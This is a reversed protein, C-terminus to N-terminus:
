QELWRTPQEPWGKGAYVVLAILGFQALTARIKCPMFPSVDVSTQVARHALEELIIHGRRSYM